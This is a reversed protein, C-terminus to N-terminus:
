AIDDEAASREFWEAYTEGPRGPFWPGKYGPDGLRNSPPPTAAAHEEPNAPTDDLWCEGNLWTAPLKIFRRETGNAKCRAIYADRGAILTQHDAKKRATKYAKLAQGKAEKRPYGSYWEEFEDEFARKTHEELINRTDKGSAAEAKTPLLKRGRDSAAEAREDRDSIIEARNQDDNEAKEYIIQHSPLMPISLLVGVDIRYEKTYGGGSLPRRGIEILLGRDIFGSITTRVTRETCRAHEAMTKKSMFISTGDDSAIYALHLIVLVEVPTGVDRKLVEGVLIGSM